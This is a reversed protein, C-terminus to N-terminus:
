TGCYFIARRKRQCKYPLRDLNKVGGLGDVNMARVYDAMYKSNARTATKSTEYGEFFNAVDYASVDM